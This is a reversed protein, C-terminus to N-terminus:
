VYAMPNSHSNFTIIWMFSKSEHMGQLSYIFNNAAMMIISTIINTIIITM